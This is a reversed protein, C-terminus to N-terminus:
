GDSPDPYGAQSGSRSSRRFTALHEPSYLWWRGGPVRRAKIRGERALRTLYQPSVGSMEAAWGSTIWTDHTPCIRAKECWRAVAKETRGLKMAISSRRMLSINDKVYDVEELTWAKDHRDVIGGTSSAM